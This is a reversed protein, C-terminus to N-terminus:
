CFTIADLPSCTQNCNCAELKKKQENFPRVIPNLSPQSPTKEKQIMDWWVGSVRVEINKGGVEFSACVPSGGGRSADKQTFNNSSLTQGEVVLKAVGQEFDWKASRIISERQSAQSITILKECLLKDMHVLVCSMQLGVDPVLLMISISPRSTNM